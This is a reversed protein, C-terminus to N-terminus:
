DKEKQRKKEKEGQIREEMMNMANKEIIIEGADSKLPWTGSNLAM